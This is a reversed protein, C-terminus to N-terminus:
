ESAAAIAEATAAAEGCEEPDCRRRDCDSPTSARWARQRAAEAVEVESAAVDAALAAAIAATCTDAVEAAALAAPVEAPRLLLPLM